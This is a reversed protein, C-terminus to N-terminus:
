YSGYSRYSGPSNHSNHFSNFFSVCAVNRYPLLYDKAPPPPHLKHRLTTLALLIALLAAGLLFANAVQSRSCKLGPWCGLVVGCGCLSMSLAPWGALALFSAGCYGSVAGAVVLFIPQRLNHAGEIIAALVVLDLFGPSVGLHGAAPPWPARLLSLAPPGGACEAVQFTSAWIDGAAACTLLALFHQPKHVGRGLWIGLMVAALVSLEFRLCAVVQGAFPASRWLAAAAAADLWRLLGLHFVLLGVGALGLLRNGPHAPRLLLAILAALSFVCLRPLIPLIKGPASAATELYPTWLVYLIAVLSAGLALRGALEMGRAPLCAAESPTDPAALSM